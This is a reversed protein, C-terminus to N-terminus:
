TRKVVILNYWPIPGADVRRAGRMGETFAANAVFEAASKLRIGIDRLFGLIEQQCPKM